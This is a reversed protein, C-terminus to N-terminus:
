RAQRFQTDAGRSVSLKVDETRQHHLEGDQTQVEQLGAGFFVFALLGLGVFAFPSGQNTNPNRYCLSVIPKIVQQTEFNCAHKQKM